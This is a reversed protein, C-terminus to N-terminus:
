LGALLSKKRGLRLVGIKDFQIMKDMSTVWLQFSEKGLIPKIRGVIEQREFQASNTRHQVFLIEDSTLHNDILREIVDLKIQNGTGFHVWDETYVITHNLHQAATYLQKPDPM